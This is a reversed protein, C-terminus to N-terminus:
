QFEFLFRFFRTQQLTAIKSPTKKNSLQQTPSHRSIIFKPLLKSFKLYLGIPGVCRPSNKPTKWLSAVNKFSGKFNNSNQPCIPFSKKHTQTKPLWISKLKYKNILFKLLFYSIKVFFRHFFAVNVLIFDDIVLFFKYVKRLNTDKGLKWFNSINRCFPLIKWSFPMASIWM